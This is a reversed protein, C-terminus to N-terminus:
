SSSKCERDAGRGGVGGEGHGYGGKSWGEGGRHGYGSICIGPLTAPM